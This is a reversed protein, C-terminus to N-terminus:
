DFCFSTESILFPWKIFCVFLIHLCAFGPVEVWKWYGVAPICSYGDAFVGPDDDGNTEMRFTVNEWFFALGAHTFVACCWHCQLALALYLAQTSGQTRTEGSHKPVTRYQPCSAMMVCPCLSHLMWSHLMLIYLWLCSLGHPYCVTLISFFCVLWVSVQLYDGQVQDSPPPAPCIGFPLRNMIEWSSSFGKPLPSTRSM